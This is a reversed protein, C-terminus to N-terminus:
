AQVKIENVEKELSSILCDLKNSNLLLNKRRLIETQNTLKNYLDFNSEVADSIDQNFELEDDFYTHPEHNLDDFLMCQIPCAERFEVFREDFSAFFPVFFKGKQSLSYALTSQYEISLFDWSMGKAKSLIKKTPQNIPHFFRLSDGNKFLKWSLYIEKKAFRGLKELSFEIIEKLKFNAEGSSQWNILIAKLLMSYILKRRQWFVSNVEIGFHNYMESIALKGAQEIDLLSNNLPNCRIIARLTDFPRENKQEIFELNELCFFGYDFNFQYKKIFKLLNELKFKDKPQLKGGNEYIRFKEAVNSDFSLSYDLPIKVVKQRQQSQYIDKSFFLLGNGYFFKQLSSCQTEIKDLSTYGFDSVTNNTSYMLRFNSFVTLNPEILDNFSLNKDHSIILRNAKLIPTEANTTM